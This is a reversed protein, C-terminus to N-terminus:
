SRSMEYRDLKLNTGNLKPSYAHEWDIINLGSASTIPTNLIQSRLISNPSEPNLELFRDPISFRAPSKGFVEYAFQVTSGDYSTLFGNRNNRYDAIAPSKYIAKRDYADFIGFAPDHSSFVVGGLKLPLIHLITNDTAPLDVYRGKGGNIWKRIPRKSLSGNWYSGGAYLSSGDSSWSVAVLNGDAVGNSDPSYLYSLDKGSLVDVKTSDDFGVAIKSGDP